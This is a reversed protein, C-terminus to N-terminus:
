IERDPRTRKKIPKERLRSISPWPRMVAAPRCAAAIAWEMLTKDRLLAILIVEDFSYTLMFFCVFFILYFLVHFRRVHGMEHAIVGRVEDKDLLILLGKTIMIYRLRPM